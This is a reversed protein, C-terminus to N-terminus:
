GEGLEKTGDNGVAFVAGTAIGNQNFSDVAFWYEQDANLSPVSLETADYVLWSHYLKEPSSGYRVNYGHAGEAAEWSVRVERPEVRELTPTVAPPLDGDGIGFVRLGSVSFPANFPM